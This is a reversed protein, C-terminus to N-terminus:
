HIPTQPKPYFRRQDSCGESVEQPAEPGLQTRLQGGSGRPFDVLLM